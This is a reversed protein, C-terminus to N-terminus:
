ICSEVFIRCAVSVKLKGQMYAKQGNLKGSALDMFDADKIVITVDSKGPPKGKGVDGKQKLDIWWTQSKGEGNTIDFQFLAKAKKIQAQKEADSAGDM